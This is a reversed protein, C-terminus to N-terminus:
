FCPKSSFTLTKCKREFQDKGKKVIAHHCFHIIRFLAVASSPTNQRHIKVMLRVTFVYLLLGELYFMFTSVEAILM